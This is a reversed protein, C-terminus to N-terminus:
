QLYHLSIKVLTGKSEGADDTKDILEVYIRMNEHMNVTNQLEEIIQMGRSIHTKKMKTKIANAEKRGIGDDDVLCYIINNEKFVDITLTGPRKLYLLGHNIANEALPQLLMAPFYQLEDILETKINIHYSFRQPFRLSELDLYAQLLELEEALPIFRRRAAELYLRNLIAFKALYENASFSDSRAIFLQIANLANNMFHPNMQSQLIQLRMTAFENRLQEQRRVFRIRLKYAIWLLAAISVIALLRFWTQQWWPPLITFSLQEVATENGDIDRAKVEFRYEAPSALPFERHLATTTQWPTQEDDDKVMRYSYTIQRNSRYSLCVYNIAVNNEQYNWVSTKGDIPLMRSIKNVSFDTFYLLPAHSSDNGITRPVFRNIQTLGNATGIYLLSDSAYVSFTENTPLGQTVSWQRIHTQSQSQLLEIEYVGQNSSAWVTNKSDIFLNKISKHDIGVVLSYASTDGQLFRKQQDPTLYYVGAGNTAVWLNHCDDIAMDSISVKLPSLYSYHANMTDITGNQLTRIGTHTGMFLNGAADQALAYNRTSNSFMELCYIGPSCDTMLLASQSASLFIQQKNTYKIKKLGMEWYVMENTRPKPFHSKKTAIANSSISIHKNIQQLGSLAVFLTHDNCVVILVDDHTIVIQRIYRWFPKGLPLQYLQNNDIYYIYGDSNAFFVSGHSDVAISRIQQSSVTKFLRNRLAEQTLMYLGNNKTTIWLNGERDEFVTNVDYNQLFNYEELRELQDNLVFQERQTLVLLKDDAIIDVRILHNNPVDTYAAISKAIRFDPTDLYITDNLSYIFRKEDNWCEDFANKLTLHQYVNGMNKQLIQVTECQPDCIEQEQVYWLTSTTHGNLGWIYSDLWFDEGTRTNILMRGYTSAWVDGQWEHFAIPYYYSLLHPYQLAHIKQDSYDFYCFQPLYTHLWIRGKSDETFDWVDNYPLGDQTTFTKFSYGDFRAIGMDSCVWVYGKSDQFARYLFSSPLGDDVTFHLLHPDQAWLLTAQFLLCFLGVFVLRGSCSIGEM